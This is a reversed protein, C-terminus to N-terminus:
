LLRYSQRVLHMTLTSEHHGLGLDPLTVDNHKPLEMSKSLQFSQQLALKAQAKVEEPLSDLTHHRKKEMTKPSYCRAKPSYCGQHMESVAQIVQVEIPQLNPLTVKNSLSKNLINLPPELYQHQLKTEKAVLTRQFEENIEYPERGPNQAVAKRVDQFLGKFGGFVKLDTTNKLEETFHLLNETTPNTLARIVLNEIEFKQDDLFIKIARQRAELLEHVLDLQELNFSDANIDLHIDNKIDKTIKERRKDLWEKLPGKLQIEDEPM